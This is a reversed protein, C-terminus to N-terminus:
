PKPPEKPPIGLPFSRALTDGLALQLDYMATLSIEFTEARRAERDYIVLLPIEPIVHISKM